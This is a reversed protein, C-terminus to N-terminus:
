SNLVITTHHLNRSHEHFFCSLPSFCDALKRGSSNTIELRTTSPLIDVCSSEETSSFSQVCKKLEGMTKFWEKVQILSMELTEFSRGSFITPILDTNFGFHKKELLDKM